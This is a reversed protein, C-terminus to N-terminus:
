LWPPWGLWPVDVKVEELVVLVLLPYIYINTKINFKIIFACFSPFDRSGTKISKYIFECRRKRLAAATAQVVTEASIVGFHGSVGLGGVGVVALERLGGRVQAVISLYVEGHLRALELDLYWAAWM